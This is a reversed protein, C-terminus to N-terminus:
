PLDAAMVCPTCHMLRATPFVYSCIQPELQDIASEFIKTYIARRLFYPEICLFFDIYRGAIASSCTETIGRLCQCHAATM